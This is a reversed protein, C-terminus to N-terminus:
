APHQKLWAIVENAHTDPPFVPYFVQEIRGGTIVLTLRKILTMGAFDFTPLNLTRTLALKEDSLVEFPVHLREVMEQQYETTQTSLGFVAVRLAQLERHHDRFGCTEPTCGRAGPIDDWGAPVPKGAEGTRPYAYVVIRHAPESSLDVLRGKTSRLAISPVKMGGLHRCAGDDLPVPLDKPLSMLNDRPGLQPPAKEPATQTFVRSLGATLTGAFTTLVARRSVSMPRIIARRM